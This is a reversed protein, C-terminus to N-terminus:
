AVSAFTKCIIKWCGNEKILHFHDEVTGQGYYGDVYLCADADNQSVHVDALVSSCEVGTEMPPNSAISSFLPEPTGSLFAQGFFGFMTAKDHFMNRVTEADGNYVSIYFEGLLKYIEEAEIIQNDM